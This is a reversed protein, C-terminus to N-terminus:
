ALSLSILRETCAKLKRKRDSVKTWDKLSIYFSIEHKLTERVLSLEVRSRPDYALKTPM